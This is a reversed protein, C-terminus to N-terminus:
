QLWYVYWLPFLFTFYIKLAQDQRQLPPVNAGNNYFDCFVNQVFTIAFINENLGSRDQKRGGGVANRIKFLLTQYTPRENRVKRKLRM